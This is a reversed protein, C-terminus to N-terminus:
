KKSKGLSQSAEIVIGSSSGKEFCSPAKNRIKPPSSTPDTTQRLYSTPKSLQKIIHPTLLQDLISTRHSKGLQQSNKSTSHNQM